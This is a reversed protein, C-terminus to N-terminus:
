LRRELLRDAKEQSEFNFRCLLMYFLSPLLGGSYIYYIFTNANNYIFMLVTPAVWILTFAFYLGAKSMLEDKAYDRLYGWDYGEFKFLFKGLFDGLFKSVIVIVFARLAPEINSLEGIYLESQIIPNDIHWLFLISQCVILLIIFLITKKM